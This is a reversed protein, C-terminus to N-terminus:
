IAGFRRYVFVTCVCCDYPLITISLSHVKNMRCLSDIPNWQIVSYPLFYAEILGLRVGLDGNWWSFVTEWIWTVFLDCCTWAMWFLEWQTKESSLTVSSLLQRFSRTARAVMKLCTAKLSMTQSDRLSWQIPFLTFNMIAKEQLRPNKKSKM